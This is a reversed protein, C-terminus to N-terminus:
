LLLNLGFALSKLSETEDRKLPVLLRLYSALNGSFAYKLTLDTARFGQHLPDSHYLIGSAVAIKKQFDLQIGTTTNWSRYSRTPLYQVMTSWGLFVETSLSYLYLGSLSITTPFFSSIRSGDGTDGSGRYVIDNVKLQLYLANTRLDSFDICYDAGASLTSAVHKTYYSSYYHGLSGWLSISNTRYCYGLHAALESPKITNDEAKGMAAYRIKYPSLYSAYGYILHRDLLRYSVGMSTSFLHQAAIKSKEWGEADLRLLLRKDDLKLLLSPDESLAALHLFGTGAIAGSGYSKPMNELEGLLFSQGYSPYVCFFGILFFLLSFSQKM